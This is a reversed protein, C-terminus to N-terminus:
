GDTTSVRQSERVAPWRAYCRPFRQPAPWLRRQTFTLLDLGQSHSRSGRALRGDPPPFVCWGSRPIFTRKGATSTAEECNLTYRDAAREVPVRCGTASGIACRTAPRNANRRHHDIPLLHSGHVCYGCPTSGQLARDRSQSLRLQSRGVPLERFTVGMFVVGEDVGRMPEVVLESRMATVRVRRCPFQGISSSCTSAV